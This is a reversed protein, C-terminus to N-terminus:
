PVLGAHIRDAICGANWNNKKVWVSEYPSIMGTEAKKPLFFATAALTSNHFQHLLPM